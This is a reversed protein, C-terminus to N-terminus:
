NNCILLFISYEILNYFTISYIICLARKSVQIRHTKAIELKRYIFDSSFHHSNNSSSQLKPSEFKRFIRLFRFKRRFFRRNFILECLIVPTVDEWRTKVSVGYLYRMLLTKNKPFRAHVNVFANDQAM